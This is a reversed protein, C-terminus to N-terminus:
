LAGTVFEKVGKFSLRHIPCPGYRRVAQRHRLTPYGKNTIFDYHPYLEHAKAMLEDRTIKAVISAASISASRRDGKILTQQPLDIPLAITGDVLVFDPAAHALSLEAISQLMAQLSAQLINIRDITAPEVIGIGVAAGDASLRERLRYREAPTTLKSDRFARHDCDAPLVVAAAVVPGALPGRGAEDTGAIRSFGRRRLLREFRGNDGDAPLGTFLRGPRPSASGTGRTM